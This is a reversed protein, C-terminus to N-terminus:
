CKLEKEYYYPGKSELILFLILNSHANKAFICYKYGLHNIKIKALLSPQETIWIAPLQAKRSIEQLKTRSDNQCAFIQAFGRVFTVVTDLKEWGFSAPKLASVATKHSFRSTTM